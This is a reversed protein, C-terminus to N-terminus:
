LKLWSEVTMGEFVWTGFRHNVNGASVYRRQFYVLADDFPEATLFVVQTKILLDSLAQPTGTQRWHVHRLFAGSSLFAPLRRGSVAQSNTTDPNHENWGNKQSRM